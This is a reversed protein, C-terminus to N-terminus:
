QSPKVLEFPIEAILEQVGFRESVSLRILYRGEPFKEQLHFGISAYSHSADVDQIQTFASSETSDFSGPPVLDWHMEWSPHPQLLRALVYVVEGPRFAHREGYVRRYGLRSGIDIRHFYDRAEPEFADIMEQAEATDIAAYQPEIARHFVGYHDAHYQSGSLGLVILLLAGGYLASLTWPSFGRYTLDAEVPNKPFVRRLRQGIAALDEEKLFACLAALMIPSFLELHMMAALGLHFTAALCLMPRRLKPIWVLAPFLLEFGITAFSCLILLRPKTALWLGPWRGGYPDDLLSFELLDGTAFDPLRIKTIAAGLYISAVLLRVLTGPWHSNLPIARNWRRSGIRDISWVAGPQAFTMLLLLHLSIATYKTLTGAADLLAFWGILCFAAFSSLRTHWGLLLMVLVGVLTSHLIITLLPGLPEPQFWATPFAPFSFGATSYLEVAYPWRPLIEWLLAAALVIRMMAWPRPSEPAFLFRTM